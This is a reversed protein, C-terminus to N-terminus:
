QEKTGKTKKLYFRDKIPRKSDIKKVIQDVSTEDRIIEMLASKLIDEKLSSKTTSKYRYVRGILQDNKNHVDLRSDELGLLTLM